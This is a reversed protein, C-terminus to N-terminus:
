RTSSSRASASRCRRSFHLNQWMTEGVTSPIGMDHHLGGSERAVAARILDHYILVGSEAPAGGGDLFEIGHVENRIVLGRFGDEGVLVNAGMGLLFHPSELDRAPRIADALEGPTRACYLFDAPGGVQLTTFPGLSRDRELCDRGLRRIRTAVTPATLQPVTIPPHVAHFRM